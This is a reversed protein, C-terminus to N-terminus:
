AKIKKYQRISMLVYQLGLNLLMCTSFVRVDALRAKVEIDNLSFSLSEDYKEMTLYRSLAPKLSVM